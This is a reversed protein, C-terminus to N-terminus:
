GISRHRGKKFATPADPVGNARFLHMWSLKHRTEASGTEQSVKEWRVSNEASSAGSIGDGGVDAPLYPSLSGAASTFLAGIDTEVAALQKFASNVGEIRLEAARKWEILEAVLVSLNAQGGSSELGDLLRTLESRLTSTETLLSKIGRHDGILPELEAQSRALATELGKLQCLLDQLASIRQHADTTFATLETLRDAISCGAEDVQAETLLQAVQRRKRDLIVIDQQIDRITALQEAIAAMRREVNRKDGLLSEVCIALRGGDASELKDLARNLDIQSGHVFDIVAAIGKDKDRLPMLASKYVDLEEKLGNLTALADKAADTRRRANANDALLEILQEKLSKRGDLNELESLAHEVQEQRTSLDSFLPASARRREVLMGIEERLATQRNQIDKIREQLDAADNDSKQVATQCETEAIRKRLSMIAAEPDTEAIVQAAMEIERQQEASMTLALRLGNFREKLQELERDQRRVRVSQFATLAILFVTSVSFLMTLLLGAPPTAWISAQLEEINDFPTYDYLFAFLAFMVLWAIVIKRM